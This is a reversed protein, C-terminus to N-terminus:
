YSLILMDRDIRFGKFRELVSMGMLSVDLDGTGVHAEINQLIADGIKVNDLQLSTANSLGNATSYTKTYKLKSLDINLKKADNTTLAVDSAGTDIMFKIKVDNVMADLYFHGDSNRSIVLEGRKNVWTHSPILVSMVRQTFYDLEFRFAYGIIIVLFIGSWTLLQGSVAMLNRQSISNYVMSIIIATMIFFSATTTSDFPFDPYNKTTITKVIFTLLTSITLIILIKILSNNRM